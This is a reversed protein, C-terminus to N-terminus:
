SLYAAVPCYHLFVSFRDSVRGGEVATGDFPTLNISNSNRVFKKQQLFAIKKFVHEISCSVRRAVGMM